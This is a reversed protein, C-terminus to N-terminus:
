LEQHDVILLGPPHCLLSLPAHPDWGLGLNLDSLHDQTLEFFGQLTGLGLRILNSSPIPSFLINAVISKGDLCGLSKKCIQGGLIQILSFLHTKTCDLIADTSPM